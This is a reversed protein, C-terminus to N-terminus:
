YACVQESSFQRSYMTIGCQDVGQVSPCALFMSVSDQAYDYSCDFNERFNARCELQSECCFSNQDIVSTCIPMERDLCDKKCQYATQISTLRATARLSLLAFLRRM